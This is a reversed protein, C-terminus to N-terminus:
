PRAAETSSELSTNLTKSQDFPSLPFSLLSLPRATESSIHHTPAENQNASVIVLLLAPKSNELATAMSNSPNPQAINSCPLNVNDLVRKRM